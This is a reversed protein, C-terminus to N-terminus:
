QVNSDPCMYSATFSASIIISSQCSFASYQISFASFQCNVTSSSIPQITITLVQDPTTPQRFKLNRIGMFRIPHGFHLGALEEAIQVLCAGPVIPHGPFHGAFIPHSPNFRISFESNTIQSQQNTIIYLNNLLSMKLNLSPSTETKRM